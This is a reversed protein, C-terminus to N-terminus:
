IKSLTGEFYICLDRISKGKWTRCGYTYNVYTEIQKAIPFASFFLFGM